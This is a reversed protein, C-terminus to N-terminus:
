TCLNIALFSETNFQHKYGTQYWKCLERIYKRKMKHSGKKTKGHFCTQKSEFQNSRLLM